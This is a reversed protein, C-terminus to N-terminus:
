LDYSIKNSLPNKFQTQSANRLKDQLTIEAAMRKDRAEKEAKTAEDQLRLMQLIEKTDKEQQQQFQQQQKQLKQTEEYRKQEEASLHDIKEGLERTEQRHATVAQSLSVIGATVKGFNNETQKQFGEQQYKIEELKQQHQASNLKVEEELRNLNSQVNATQQSLNEQTKFIISLKEKIKKHRKKGKQEAITVKDGLDTFQRMNEDHYQETKNTLNYMNTDVTDFRRETEKQNVEALERAVDFEEGVKKFGADTNRTLTDIKEGNLQVGNNILYLRRDISFQRCAFYTVCLLLPIHPALFASLQMPLFCQGGFASFGTLATVAEPFYRSSFRREPLRLLSLSSPFFNALSQFVDLLGGAAYSSNAGALIAITIAAYIKKRLANM